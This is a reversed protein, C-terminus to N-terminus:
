SYLLKPIVACFAYLSKCVCIFCKYSIYGLTVKGWYIKETPPFPVSCYMRYQHIIPPDSQKISLTICSITFLCGGLAKHLVEDPGAAKRQTVKPM